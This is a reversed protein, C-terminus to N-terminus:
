INGIRCTRDARAATERTGVTETPPKSIKAMSLTTPTPAGSGGRLGLEVFFSFVLRGPAFGGRRGLRPFFWLGPGVWGM